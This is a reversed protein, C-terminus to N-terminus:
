VGDAERNMYITILQGCHRMTDTENPPRNLIAVSAFAVFVFLTAAVRGCDCGNCHTRPAVAIVCLSVVYDHDHPRCCLDFANMNSCASNNNCKVTAVISAMTALTGNQREIIDIPPSRRSYLGNLQFCCHRCRRLLLEACAACIGLLFKNRKWEIRHKAASIAAAVRRSEIPTDATRTRM